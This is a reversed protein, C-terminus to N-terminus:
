LRFIRYMMARTRSGGFGDYVNDVVTEGEGLEWLGPSAGGGEKRSVKFIIEPFEKAQERCMSLFLGDSMRMINAKHVATVVKRGAFVFLSICMSVSFIEEM